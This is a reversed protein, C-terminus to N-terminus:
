YVDHLRVLKEYFDKPMKGLMDVPDALDYPDLAVPAIAVAGGEDDSDGKEGEAAAPAEALTAQDSRLRRPPIPPVGPLKSWEEELEKLQLM